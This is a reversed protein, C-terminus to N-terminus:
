HWLIYPKVVPDSIQIPSVVDDDLADRDCNPVELQFHSKKKEKKRERERSKQALIASGGATDNQYALLTKRIVCFIFCFKHNITSM